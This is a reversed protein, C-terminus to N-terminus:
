WVHESGQGSQWADQERERAVVKKRTLTTSTQPQCITVGFYKSGDNAHKRHPHKAVGAAADQQPKTHWLSFLSTLRAATVFGRQQQIL